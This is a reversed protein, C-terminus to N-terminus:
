TAKELLIAVTWLAATGLAIANFRIKNGSSLTGTTFASTQAGESSGSGLTVSGVAATATFAGTGNYYEVTAQPAGGATGVRFFIRRITWTVVTTGDDPDYPIEYEKTDAGTGGPTQGACLIIQTWPRKVNLNVRSTAISGVDSLNNSSFLTGAISSIAFSVSSTGITPNVAGCFFLLGANATGILVTVATGRFQGPQNMYVSRTWVEPTGGAGKTTVTYLGNDSAAAGDKVLIVDGLVTASGDVSQSGNGNFTITAGVGSAGNAYTYAAPAAATALRAQLLGTQAPSLIVNAVGSSHSRDTIQAYAANVPVLWRGTAGPTWPSTAGIPTLLTNSVDTWTAGDPSTQIVLTANYAGDVEVQLLPVGAAPLYVSSNTSNLPGFGLFGTM